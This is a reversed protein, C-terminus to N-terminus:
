PTKKRMHDITDDLLGLSPCIAGLGTHKRPSVVVAIDSDSWHQQRLWQYREADARLREIEMAQAVTNKLREDSEARLREIEVRLAAVDEVVGIIPGGIYGIAAAHMKAVLECASTYSTNLREIESAHAEIHALVATMAAKIAEIEKM